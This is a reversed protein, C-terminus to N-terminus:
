AIADKSFPMNKAREEEVASIADELKSFLGLYKQKKNVMVQAEWKNNSKKWTVGRVGSSNNNKYAGIKNQNNQAQTVSRLNCRRNDLTNHNIHDGVMGDNIDLLVSHLILTNFKREGVKKNGYVYFNSTGRNLHAYWKGDFENAKPLDTTDILCELITGDRRNLFIATVEGRIEYKNKM